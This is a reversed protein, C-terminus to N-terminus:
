EIKFSCFFSKRDNHKVKGNDSLKNAKFIFLIVEDITKISNNKVSACSFYNLSAVLSISIGKCICSNITEITSM